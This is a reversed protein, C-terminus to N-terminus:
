LRLDALEPLPHAPFRRRLDTIVRLLERDEALPELPASVLTGGFVAVIEDDDDVVHDPAARIGCEGLREHHRSLPKLYCGSLFPSLDHAHAVEWRVGAGSWLAVEFGSGHLVEFIDRAFPRLRGDWTRITDDVDFFVRLRQTM